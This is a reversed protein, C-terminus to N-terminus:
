DLGKKQALKEVRRLKLIHTVLEGEEIGEQPVVRSGVGTMKEERKSERRRRSHLSVTNLKSSIQVFSSSSFPVQVAM